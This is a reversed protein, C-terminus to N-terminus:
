LCDVVRDAGSSMDPFVLDGINDGFVRLRNLVPRLARRSRSVPEEAEIKDDEFATMADSIEDAIGVVWEVPEPEVLETREAEPWKPVTFLAVFFLRERGM